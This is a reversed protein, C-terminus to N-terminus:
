QSLEMTEITKIRPYKIGQDGAALHHDAPCIHLYNGLQAPQPSSGMAVLELPEKAMRFEIPM